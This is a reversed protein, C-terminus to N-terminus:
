RQARIVTDRDGAAVAHRQGYKEAGKPAACAVVADPDTLTQM